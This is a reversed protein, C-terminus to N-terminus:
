MSNLDSTPALYVLDSAFFLHQTMALTLFCVALCLACSYLLVLLAQVSCLHFVLNRQEMVGSRHLSTLPDQVAATQLEEGGGWGDDTLAAELFM